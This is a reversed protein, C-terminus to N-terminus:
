YVRPTIKSSSSLERLCSETLRETKIGISISSHNFFCGSIFALSTKLTDIVCSLASFFNTNDKQGSKNKVTILKQKNPIKNKKNGLTKVNKRIIYTITIM